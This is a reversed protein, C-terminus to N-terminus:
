NSDKKSSCNNPMGDDFFTWTMSWRMPVEVLGNLEMSVKVLSLPARNWDMEVSDDQEMGCHFQLQGVLEQSDTRNM